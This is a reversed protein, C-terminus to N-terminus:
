GPRLVYGNRSFRPHFAPDNVIIDHWRRRFRSLEHPPTDGPGRSAREYHVREAFPTYVIRYGLLRLRLCLDLDNFELAFQEVFGGVRDLVSKRTAFVAGTVM